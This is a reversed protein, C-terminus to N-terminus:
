RDRFIIQWATHGAFHHVCGVSLVPYPLSSTLSRYFRHLPTKKGHLLASLSGTSM